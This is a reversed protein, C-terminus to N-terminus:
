PTGAAAGDTEPSEGAFDRCGSFSLIDWMQASEGNADWVQVVGGCEGATLDLMGFSGLNRYTRPGTSNDHLWLQFPNNKDFRQLTVPTGSEGGQLVQDTGRAFIISILGGTGKVTGPYEYVDWCQGTYPQQLEWAVIGREYPLGAKDISLYCNSAANQILM